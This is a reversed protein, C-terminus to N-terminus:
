KARAIEDIADPNEVSAIDGVEKGLWKKRIIGRL